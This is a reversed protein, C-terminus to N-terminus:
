VLSGSKTLNQLAKSQIISIYIIAMQLIKRVNPINYKIVMQHMKHENTLNKGAETDHVLFFRAAGSPYAGIPPLASATYFAGGLGDLGNV